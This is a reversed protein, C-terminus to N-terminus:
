KQSMKITCFKSLGIKNKNNQNQTLFFRLFLIDKVVIKKRKKSKLHIFRPTETSEYMFM